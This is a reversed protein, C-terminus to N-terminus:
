SPTPTEETSEVLYQRKGSVEEYMRWIYEGILGLLLVTLGGFFLTLLIIPTLGVTPVSGTLRAVVVIIGYIISGVVSLFGVFTASRIPLNTSSLLLDVFYEVRKWFRWQSKGTTRKMREYELVKRRYGLEFVEGQLFRKRGSKSVFQIAARQSLLFYDFGGRPMEAYRRRAVSYSLKSFVSALAGDERETRAAIVVEAGRRWEEVMQAMLEPPDQLDASIVITADGTSASVGAVIASVQGFNRSLRIMKVTLGKAQRTLQARIEDLSKDTSGDDVLIIELECEAFGSDRTAIMRTVLSAISGANNYVPSVVSIKQVGSPNVVGNTM